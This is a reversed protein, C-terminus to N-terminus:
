AEEGRRLYKPSKFPHPQGMAPGSEVLPVEWSDPRIDFNFSNPIQFHNPASYWRGNEQWYFREGWTFDMYGKTKTGDALTLDAHDWTRGRHSSMKPQKCARIGPLRNSKKPM